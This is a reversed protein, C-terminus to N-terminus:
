RDLVFCFPHGAPDAHVQFAEGEEIVPQGLVRAGLAVARTSAEALDDVTIDLHAQQPTGDPWDPARYGAVAQFALKMGLGDPHVECWGPYDDVLRGGLLGLYFAAAASPDPCDFVVSRLRLPLPEPDVM